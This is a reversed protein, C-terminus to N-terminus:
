PVLLMTTTVLRGSFRLVSRSRAEVRWYFDQMFSKPGQLLRQRQSGALSRVPPVAGRAPGLIFSNFVPDFIELRPTHPVAQNDRIVWLRWSSVWFVGPDQGGMLLTGSSPDRAAMETPLSVRTPPGAGPEVPDLLYTLSM